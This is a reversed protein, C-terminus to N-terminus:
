RARRQCWGNDPPMDRRRHTRTHIKVAESQGNALAPTWLLLARARTSHCHTHRRGRSRIRLPQPHCQHATCWLVRAAQPRACTHCPPQGLPHPHPRPRTHQPWSTQIRPGQWRLHRHGAAHACGRAPPAFCRAHTHPVSVRAAATLTHELPCCCHCPSGPAM